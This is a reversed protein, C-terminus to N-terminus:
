WKRGFVNRHLRPRLSYGFRRAADKRNYGTEDLFVLMNSNYMSVKAQYQACLQECRQIAYAQLKKRTFGMHQLSRCITSISVVTGMVKQLEVQLKNLYISPNQCVLQVLLLKDHEHLSHPKSKVRTSRDVDGTRQYRDLIRWVTSNSVCLRRVVTRINCNM